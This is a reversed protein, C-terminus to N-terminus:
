SPPQFLVPLQDAFFTMWAMMISSLSLGILIIGAYQQVPLALFFIQLQPMLRGLIALAIFFLTSLIVFPSALQVGIRFCLGLEHAIMNSFDQLPVDGGPTFLWYTDVMAMLLQHHMDTAFMLALGTTALMVGPLSGQSGLQPNFLYANSLGMTLSIMTGAVELVSVLMKVMTGFFLGVLIEGLLLLIFQDLDKPQAPLAPSVVPLIVLTVALSFLLKVRSPVTTDGIGPLLIMITGIRMFVLLFMFLNGGLIKELM